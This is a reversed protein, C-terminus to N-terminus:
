YFKRQYNNPNYLHNSSSKFAYDIIMVDEDPTKNPDEEDEKDPIRKQPVPLEQRPRENDREIEVQQERKRIEDIIFADLM